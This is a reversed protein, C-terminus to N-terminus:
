CQLKALTSLVQQCVTKLHKASSMGKGYFHPVSSDTLNRERFFPLPYLHPMHFYLFPSHPVVYKDKVDVDSTIFMELLLDLALVAPDTPNCWWIFTLFHSQGARPLSSWASSHFGVAKWFCGYCSLHAKRLVCLTFFDPNKELYQVVMTRVSRLPLNM